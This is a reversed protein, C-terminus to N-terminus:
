LTKMDEEEERHRHDHHLFFSKMSSVGGFFKPLHNDAGWITQDPKFANESVKVLNYGDSNHLMLLRKTEMMKEYHEADATVKTANAKIMAVEYRTMEALISMNREHEKEKRLMEIEHNKELEELHIENQKADIAISLKQKAQAQLGDLQLAVKTNEEKQLRQETQAENIRQLKSKIESPWEPARVIRVDSIELGDERSCALNKLKNEMEDNLEEIKKPELIETANYKFCFMMITELSPAKVCDHELRHHYKAFLNRAHEVPIRNIVQFEKWELEYFDATRCKAEFVDREPRTNIVFYNVGFFGRLVMPIAFHFGPLLPHKYYSGFQSLIAVSGEEVAIYPM